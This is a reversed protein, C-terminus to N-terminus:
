SFKINDDLSGHGLDDVWDRGDGGVGDGRGNM